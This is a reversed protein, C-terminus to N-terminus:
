QKIQLQRFRWRCDLRPFTPTKKEELFLFPFLYLIFNNKRVITFRCVCMTAAKLDGDNLFFKRSFVNKHAPWYKFNIEAAEVLNNNFLHFHHIIVNNEVTYVRRAVPNLGLAGRCYILM